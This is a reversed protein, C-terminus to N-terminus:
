SSCSYFFRKNTLKINFHFAQKYKGIIIVLKKTNLEGVSLYLWVFNFFYKKNIRYSGFWM